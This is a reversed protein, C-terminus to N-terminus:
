SLVCFKKEYIVELKHTFLNHFPFSQHFMFIM